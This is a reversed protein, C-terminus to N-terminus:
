KTGVIKISPIRELQTVRRPFGPVSHEPPTVLQLTVYGRALLAIAGACMAITPVPFLTIDQV